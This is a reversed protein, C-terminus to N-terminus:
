RQASDGLAFVSTAPPTSTGRAAPTRLGLFELLRGESHAGVGRVSRLPGAAAAARLEGLTRVGAEDLREALAGVWPQLELVSVGDDDPRALEELRLVGARWL